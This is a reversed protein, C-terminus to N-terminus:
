WAQASERRDNRRDCRRAWANSRACQYTPTLLGPGDSDRTKQQERTRATNSATTTTDITASADDRLSATLRWQSRRRSTCLKPRPFPLRMVLSERVTITTTRPYCQNGATKAVAFAPQRQDNQTIQIHKTVMFHGVTMPESHDGLIECVPPDHPTGEVQCARGCALGPAARSPVAVHATCSQGRAPTHYGKLSRRPSAV